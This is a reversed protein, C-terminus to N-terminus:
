STRTASARQLLQGSLRSSIVKPFALKAQYLLHDIALCVILRRGPQGCRLHPYLGPTLSGFTVAAQLLKWKLNQGRQSFSAGCDGSDFSARAGSRM